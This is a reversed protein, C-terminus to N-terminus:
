ANLKAIIEKAMPGPEWDDHEWSWKGVKCQPREDLKAIHTEEPRKWIHQTPPDGEGDFDFVIYYNAKM